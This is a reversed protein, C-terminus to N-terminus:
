GERIESYYRSYIGLMDLPKGYDVQYIPHLMVDLLRTQDILRKIALEFKESRATTPAATASGRSACQAHTNREYGRYTHHQFSFRDNCFANNYRSVNHEPGCLEWVKSDPDDSSETGYNQSNSLFADGFFFRESYGYGDLYSYSSEMISLNDFNGSLTETQGYVVTGLGPDGHATKTLDRYRLQEYITDGGFPSKYAFRLTYRYFDDNNSECLIETGRSELGSFGIAEETYTGDVANYRHVTASEAVYMSIWGQPYTNASTYYWRTSYQWDVTALVDYEYLYYLPLYSSIVVGAHPDDVMGQSFMATETTLVSSGFGVDVYEVSKVRSWQSPDSANWVFDGKIVKRSVLNTESFTCTDDTVSAPKLAFKELRSGIDLGIIETGVAVPWDTKEIKRTIGTNPDVFSFLTSYDNAGLDWIFFRKVDRSTGMGFDWFGDYSDVYLIGSSCHRPGDYHGVIYHTTKPSGSDGNSLTIVEDSGPASGAIGIARLVVISDGIAFGSAAGEIAGNARKKSTDDCHYFIPIKLLEGCIGSVDATDDEPYISVITGQLYDYSVLAGANKYNLTAM